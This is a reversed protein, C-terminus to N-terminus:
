GMTDLCIVFQKKVCQFPQLPVEEIVKEEKEYTEGNAVAAELKAAQEQEHALLEKQLKENEATVRQFDAIALDLSEDSLCSDYIIPVSMFSGLRPVTKFWMRPERVVESVYVHKFSDLIDEEAVPEAM